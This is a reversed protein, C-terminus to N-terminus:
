DNGMVRKYLNELVTISGYGTAKRRKNKYINVQLAAKGKRFKGTEKQSLHVTIVGQDQDVEFNAVNVTTNGQAVTVIVEDYDQLATTDKIIRLLLDVTEYQYFRATKKDGM